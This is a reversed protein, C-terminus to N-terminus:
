RNVRSLLALQKRSTPTLYDPWWDPRQRGYPLQRNSWRLPVNTYAGLEGVLIKIRHYEGSRCFPRLSIVGRKRPRVLVIASRLHQEKPVAVFDLRHQRYWDAVPFIFYGREGLRSRLLQLAARQEKTARILTRAM